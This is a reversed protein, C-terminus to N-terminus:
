KVYCIKSSCNPCQREEFRVTRQEVRRAPTSARRVQIVVYLLLGFAAVAVAMTLVVMVLSNGGM